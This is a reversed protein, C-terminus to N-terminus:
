STDFPRPSPLALAAVAEAANRAIDSWRAPHGLRWAACLRADVGTLAFALLRFRLALDKADAVIDDALAPQSAPALARFVYHRAVQEAPWLLSLVRARVPYPARCAREAVLALALLLAIISEMDRRIAEMELNM